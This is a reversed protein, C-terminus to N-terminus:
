SRKVLARVAAGGGTGTWEWETRGRSARMHIAAETPVQDLGAPAEPWQALALVTALLDSVDRASGLHRLVPAAPDGEWSQWLIAGDRSAQVAISYGGAPGTRTRTQRKRWRALQDTHDTPYVPWATM